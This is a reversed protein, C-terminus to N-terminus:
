PAFSVFLTFFIYRVASIKLADIMSKPVAVHRAIGPCNIPKNVVFGWVISAPVLASRIMLAPNITDATETVDAPAKSPSPIPVGDKSIERRRYTTIMIGHANMKLRNIPTVPTHFAKQTESSTVATTAYRINAM